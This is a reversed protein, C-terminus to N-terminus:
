DLSQEASRASQEASRAFEDGTEVSCEVLYSGEPRGPEADVRVPQGLGSAMATGLFSTTPHDFRTLPTLACGLLRFTTSDDSRDVVEVADALGFGDVVAEALQDSLRRPEAALSENTEALYSELLKAGVPRSRRGVSTNGASASALSADDGTLILRIDSGGVDMKTSPVYVQRASEDVVDHGDVYSGYVGETVLDSVATEPALYYTLVAVYLTVAGLAALLWQQTLVGGAALVLGLAAGVGAVVVWRRSRSRVRGAGDLGPVSVDTETSTSSSNRRSQESREVVDSTQKETM